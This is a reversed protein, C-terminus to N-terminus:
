ENDPVEKEKKFIPVVLHVGLRLPVPRVRHLPGGDALLMTSVPTIGDIDYAFSGPEVKYKRYKCWWAGVGATFELHVRGRRGLPMAYMYDMGLSLADGQEGKYNLGIDYHVGAVSIGISHGLLRYKPDADKGRNRGLWLRGSLYLAQAQICTRYYDSVTNMWPRFVWPSYWDAELSWRNGVPMEIGVSMLPLLLNSRFAVAPRHLLSDPSGAQAMFPVLLALIITLKRLKRM